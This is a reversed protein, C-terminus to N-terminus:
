TTVYEMVSCSMKSDILKGSGLLLSSNFSAIREKFVKSFTFGSPYNNFNDLVLETKVSAM